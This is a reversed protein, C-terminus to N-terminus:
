HKNFLYNIEDTVNKCQCNDYNLNVGCNSCLGKCDSSCLPKYPIFLNVQEVLIKELDIQNGDFFIYEMDDPNLSANTEGILKGPFLIVDFKSNIKLEFHELCSVCPLSIITNVSGRAKIKKGELSLHVKYNLNELFGSGEEILLNEDIEISGKLDLGNPTIQKIDIFM